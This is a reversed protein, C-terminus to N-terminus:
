GPQSDLLRQKHHPLPRQMRAEDACTTRGFSHTSPPKPQMVHPGKSARRGASFGAEQRGFCCAGGTVSVPGGARGSMGCDCTELVRGFTHTSFHRSFSSAVASPPHSICFLALRPTPPRPGLRWHPFPAGDGACSVETHNPRGERNQSLSHSTMSWTEVAHDFGVEEKGRAEVDPRDGTWRRGIAQSVGVTSGGPWPPGSYGDSPEHLLGDRSSAPHAM